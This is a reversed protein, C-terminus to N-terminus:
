AKRRAMPMSVVNEARNRAAAAFNPLIFGERLLDKFFQPANEVIPPIYSKGPTRPTSNMALVRGDCNEIRNLLDAFEAVTAEMAALEEGLANREEFLARFEKQARDDAENQRAEVLRAGLRKVAEGLRDRRFAADEADKRAAAAADGFKRPDLAAEHAATATAEAARAAAEAESLLTAVDSSTPLVNLAGAIRESLDAVKTM